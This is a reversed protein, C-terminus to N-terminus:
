VYWVLTSEISYQILSIDSKIIVYRNDNFLKLISNNVLASETFIVLLNEEGILNNYCSYDIRSVKCKRTYHAIEECKWVKINQMFAYAIGGVYNNNRISILRIVLWLNRKRDNKLNIWDYKWETEWCYYKEYGFILFTDRRTERSHFVSELEGISNNRQIRISIEIAYAHIWYTLWNLSHIGHVCFSDRRFQWRMCLTFVAFGSIHYKIYKIKWLRYRLPWSRVNM